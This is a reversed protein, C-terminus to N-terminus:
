PLPPLLPNEYNFDDPVYDNPYFYVEEGRAQVKQALRRPSALRDLIEGQFYLEVVQGLYRRQGLLFADQSQAGPIEYIVRLLEEGGERWDVPPTVWQTEVASTIPDQPESRGQIEDYLHVQVELASKLEESNLNLNAAASVPITLIVREGEQWTRDRYVRTQGLAFKDAMDEPREVGDRLKVAAFEYLNGAKVTGLEFVRQYYDAAKDFIGMSEYLMGFEYLLNPEDEPARNSAEELKMTARMLDGSVRLTQASEVLGELVPDAIQPRGLKIQIDEPVYRPPRPPLSATEPTQHAYVPKEVIVERTPGEIPVYRTIIEPDAAQSPTQENQLRLAIAAGLATLELFAILGLVWCAIRFVPLTRQETV